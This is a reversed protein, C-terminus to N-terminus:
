NEPEISAVLGLSQMQDRHFEAPEYPEVRCLATGGKHAELMLTTAEVVSIRFVKVLSVIVHEMVNYDDNHLFVRYKPLLEKKTDTNKKTSIGM